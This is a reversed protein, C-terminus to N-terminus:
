QGTVKNQLIEWNVVNKYRDTASNISQTKLGFVKLNTIYLYRPQYLGIAPADGQWADLFPKYKIVRLSPDIRTRGQELSDDAIKSSYESLNLRFSSRPDAQSSDWYAYVDPDVGISIGYIIAEYSHYSLSNQLDSDSLVDLKLDVGIAKWQSKLLNADNQIESESSVSLSITLKKGAKYRYGDSGVIWGNSDLLAKSATPNYSSQANSPNYTYQSKLFPEDVAVTSYDLSNIIEKQNTAQVLSQRINKDALIGSSTKFFVMYQATLPFSYINVKSKKLSGPLQNLGSMADILSDKFDKVMSDKEHYARIVFKDLKPKGQWYDHFPALEVTEQKTEITSGSAKVANLSFPGAGIPDITDFSITRMNAPAVKSLVHYPIIGTTLSYIFSSLPNPLTFIVTRSDPTTINIGQWSSILPSQADPSKITNFTFAVDKSTLTKGDQWILNPRLKITYNVGSADVTYSQALNGVLQNNENYKMLGAFVLNSVSSDVPSSAYIPNINTYDGVIGEKYTGGPIPKLTQFYNSLNSIQLIVLGILFIVLIVWIAIFRKVHQLRNLRKIFNNEFNETTQFSLQEVQSISRRYGKKFNM